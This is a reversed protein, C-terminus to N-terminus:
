MLFVMFGLSEVLGSEVERTSEYTSSTSMQTEADEGWSVCRSALFRHASMVLSAWDMPMDKASFLVLVQCSLISVQPIPVVVLLSRYKPYQSSVGRRERRM